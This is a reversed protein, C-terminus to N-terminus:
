LKDAHCLIAQNARLYYYYESNGLVSYLNRSFSHVCYYASSDILSYQLNSMILLYEILYIHILGRDHTDSM